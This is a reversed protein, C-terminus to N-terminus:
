LRSDRASARDYGARLGTEWDSQTSGAFTRLPDCRHYDDPFLTLRIDGVQMSSM